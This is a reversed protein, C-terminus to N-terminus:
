IIRYFKYFNKVREDKLIPRHIQLLNMGTCNNGEIITIGSDTLAVDWGAYKIYPHKEALAIIEEKINEWGPIKLGYFRYGTEPHEKLWEVKGSLPFSAGEKIEGTEIDIEASIGGQTWNDAPASSKTGIRQVAFPIFAKKTSPDLMTLIRMTNLSQPYLKKAFEGQIVFENIIYNDLRCIKKQLDDEAVKNNDIYLNGNDFKVIFVGSGGGGDVPKIVVKLNKKAYEILSNVDKIDSGFPIIEGKEILALTKPIKVNDKYVREFVVKNNLVFSYRGNIFKAKLRKYDSLYDKYNEKTLQYIIKTEGYFGKSLLSIGEFPSIKIKQHFAKKWFLYNLQMFNYCKDVLNRM